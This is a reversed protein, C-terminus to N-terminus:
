VHAQFNRTSQLPPLWLCYKAHQVQVEFNRSELRLKWLTSRTGCKYKLIAVKSGSCGCHEKRVVSLISLLRSKRVPAALNAERAVGRSLLQSKRAPAALTYKTCKLTAVKAGPSGSLVKCSCTHKFIALVKSRPFGFVISQMSCKYKLTAVKSGSSGFRVERVM